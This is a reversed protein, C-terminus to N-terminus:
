SPGPTKVRDPDDRWVVYSYATMAVTGPLITGLMVFVGWAPRVVGCLLTAMGSAVFLWGGVRHTKTWSLRSSLTWPTRIGVFWNPRVRDLCSGLVIFLLGLSVAILRAMDVRHGLAVLTTAAYVAGMFALIASRFIAYVNAFGAYNSRCPDIAPLTMFLLHMGLTVLPILLLGMFRGGYGDVEGAANWHVPIREPVRGWAWAAAAFMAAVVSWSFVETKWSMRM